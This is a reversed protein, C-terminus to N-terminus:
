SSIIKDNELHLRFYIIKNKLVIKIINQQLTNYRLLDAKTIQIDYFSM